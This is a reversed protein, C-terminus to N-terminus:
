IVTIILHAGAADLANGWKLTATNLRLDKSIAM